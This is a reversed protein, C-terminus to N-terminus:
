CGVVNRTRKSTVDGVRECENLKPDHCLGAM